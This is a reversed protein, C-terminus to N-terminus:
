SAEALREHAMAAHVTRLVGFADTLWAEQQDLGGTRMMRAQTWTASQGHYAVEHSWYFSRLAWEVEPTFSLVPCTKLALPGDHWVVKTKTSGDCGRKACLQLQRCAACNTGTKVWDSDTRKRAEGLWNSFRAGIRLDEREKVSPTQAGLLAFYLQAIVTPQGGFLAAVGSLSDTDLAGPTPRLYRDVARIRELYVDDRDEADAGRPYVLHAVANFSAVSMRDISCEIPEGDVVIPVVVTRM